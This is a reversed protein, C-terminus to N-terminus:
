QPIIERWDPLEVQINVTQSDSCAYGDSDTVMLTVQKSGESLFKTTPNQDTSTLPEGDTFGWNWSSKSAGGYVTSQDAFLVDEQASPTQPSWNFDISPYRHSETTFSGGNVWGSDGGRSDWVEVRWYYATNYGIQDSGPSVAVTVTQNNITPSPNSLGSYVRNVEPSSFDSNNDVQFQFQSETDGDSDSYTWSFYHAASAGCYTSSDGESVSLNTATPPNNCPPNTTFKSDACTWGSWTGFNDRVAMKWAYNVGFELQGPNVTYFNDSSLIEGTDVEPSPFNGGEGGNDDIQVWYAEQVSGGSPVFNWNLTPTPSDSNYCAPQTVSGTCVQFNSGPLIIPNDPSQALTYFYLGGVLVVIVIILNKKKSFISM